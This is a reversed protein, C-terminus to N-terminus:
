HFSDIIKLSNEKWTIGPKWKPAKVKSLYDDLKQELKKSILKM